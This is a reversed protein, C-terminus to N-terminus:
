EVQNPHRLFIELNLIQLHLMAYKLLPGAYNLSHHGVRAKLRGTVAANQEPERAGPFVTTAEPETSRKGRDASVFTLCFLRINGIHQM